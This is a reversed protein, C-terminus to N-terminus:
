EHDGTLPEEDTEAEDAEDAADAVPDGSPPAAAYLGMTPKRSSKPKGVGFCNGADSVIDRQSARVFRSAEARMRKCAAEAITLRDVYGGPDAGVCEWRGKAADCDFVAPCESCKATTPWAPTTEPQNEQHERWLGAAHRIRAGIAPLDRRTFQVAITRENSRTHWVSVSLAEIDPYNQAVLWWHLQFQLADRVALVSYHGRGSKWDLEHLLTPAPGSHLLDIESTVRCGTEPLDWALQGSRDGEGGDFRLLNDPHKSAVFKAVHWMSARCGRIADPQIDPRSGLLSSDIEQVLESPTLAGGSDVYASILRSMADHVANGSESEATQDLVAGTEIYRAQRPCVAYRALTSRDVLPLPTDDLDVFAAM